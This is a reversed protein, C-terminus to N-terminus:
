ASFDGKKGKLRKRTQMKGGGRGIETKFVIKL